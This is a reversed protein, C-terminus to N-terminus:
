PDESSPTSTTTPPAATSRTPSHLQLYPHGPIFGRSTKGPGTGGGLPWESRPTPSLFRVNSAPGASDIMRDDDVPDADLRSITPDFRTTKPKSDKSMTAATAKSKLASEIPATGPPTLIAASLTPFLASPPLARTEPLEPDGSNIYTDLDLALLGREEDGIESDLKGGRYRLAVLASLSRKRGIKSARIPGPESLSIHSGGFTSLSNQSAPTRHHHHHHPQPGHASLTSLGGLPPPNVLDLYKSQNGGCTGRDLGVKSIM